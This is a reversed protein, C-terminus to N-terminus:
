PLSSRQWVAVDTICFGSGERVEMQAFELTVLPRGGLVAGLFEASDEQGHSAAPVTVALPRVLGVHTQLDCAYRLLGQV